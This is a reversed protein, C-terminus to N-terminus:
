TRNLDCEEFLFSEPQNNGVHKAVSTGRLGQIGCFVLMTEYRLVDDIYKIKLLHLLSDEYSM